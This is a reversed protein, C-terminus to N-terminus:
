PLTLHGLAKEDVRERCAAVAGLVVVEEADLTEPVVLVVPDVHLVTPVAALHWAPAQAPTAVIAPPFPPAVQPSLQSGPWSSKLQTRM